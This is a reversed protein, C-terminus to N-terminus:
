NQKYVPHYLHVTKNLKGLELVLDHM